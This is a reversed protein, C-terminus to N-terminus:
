TGEQTPPPPWIGARARELEERIAALGVLAHSLAGEAELRVACLECVGTDAGGVRPGIGLTRGCWSCRRAAM